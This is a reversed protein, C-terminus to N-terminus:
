FKILRSSAPLPHPAPLSDCATTTSIPGRSLVDQPAVDVSAAIPPSLTLAKCCASYQAALAPGSDLTERAAPCPGGRLRRHRAHNGTRAFLPADPM